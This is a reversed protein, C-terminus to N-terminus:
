FSNLNTKFIGSGLTHKCNGECNRFTENKWTSTHFSWEGDFKQWAAREGIDTFTKIHM